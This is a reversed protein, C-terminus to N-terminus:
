EEAQPLHGNKGIKAQLKNVLFKAFRYTRRLKEDILIKRTKDLKKCKLKFNKKFVKPNSYLSVKSTLEDALALLDTDQKIM